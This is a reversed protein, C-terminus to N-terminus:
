PKMQRHKRVILLAMELAQNYNLRPDVRSRYAYALDAEELRSAGGLCETVAEGTRSAVPM